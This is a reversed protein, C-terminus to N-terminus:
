IKFRNVKRKIKKTIKLNFFNEFVRWGSMQNPPKRIENYICHIIGAYLFLYAATAARNSIDPRQIILLVLSTIMLFIISLVFWLRCDISYKLFLIIWAALIIFIIEWSDVRNDSLMRGLLFVYFLTSSFLALFTWRFINRVVILKLMAFLFFPSLVLTINEISTFSGLYKSVFFELIELSPKLLMQSSYQFTTHIVPEETSISVTNGKRGHISIIEVEFTKGKSDGILPFGFPFFQNNQFQDTKYVNEYFWRREGKERIRFTLVDDNIRDYTAFRVAVIGLNSYNSNFEAKVGKGQSLEIHPEDTKFAQSSYTESIQYFQLKAQLFFSISVSISFLFIILIVPSSIFKQLYKYEKM